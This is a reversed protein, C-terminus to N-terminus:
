HAADYAIRFAQRIKTAQDSKKIENQFKQYIKELRDRDKEISLLFLIANLPPNAKLLALALPHKDLDETFDALYAAKEKPPMTSIFEDYFFKPIKYSNSNLASDIIQPFKTVQKGITLSGYLFKDITKARDQELNLLKKFEDVKDLSFFDSPGLHAYIKKQEAEPLGNVWLLFDTGALLSASLVAALFHENSKPALFAKKLIRQVFKPQKNIDSQKFSDFLKSKGVALQELWFSILNSMQGLDLLTNDYLSVDDPFLLAALQFVSACPQSKTITSTGTTKTVISRRVCWNFFEPNSRLKKIEAKFNDRSITEMVTNSSYDYLPIEQGFEKESLIHGRTLASDRAREIPLSPDYLAELTKYESLPISDIGIKSINKLPQPSDMSCNALFVALFIIYFYHLM